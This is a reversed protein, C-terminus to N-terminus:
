FEDYLDIWIIFFVALSEIGYNRIRSFWLGDSIYKELDLPTSQQEAAVSTSFHGAASLESM